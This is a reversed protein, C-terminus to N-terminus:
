QSDDAADEDTESLLNVADFWSVNEYSNNKVSKMASVFGESLSYLIAIGETTSYCSVIQKNQMYSNFDITISFSKGTTTTNQSTTGEEIIYEYDVGNINIAIVIDMSAPNLTFFELKNKGDFGIGVSDLEYTVAVVTLDLQTNINNIILTYDRGSEYTLTYDAVEESGDIFAEVVVSNLDYGDEVTVTTTLTGGRSIRSPMPNLTVGEINYYILADSTIQTATAGITVEGYVDAIYLTWTGNSNQTLVGEDSTITDGNMEIFFAGLSALEYGTYPSLTLTLSSHDAVSSISPYAVVSDLNYHIDWATVEGSAEQSINITASLGDITSITITGTNTYNYPNENIEITMTGNDSEPTDFIIDSYTMGLNGTNSIDLIEGIYKHRVTVNITYEGGINPVNLTSPNVRVTRDTAAQTASFVVNGAQNGSITITFNRQGGINNDILFHIEDAGTDFPLIQVYNADTEVDMIADRNVLHLVYEKSQKPITPNDISYEMGDITTFATISLEIGYAEQKLLISTRLADSTTEFSWYAGSLFEGTHNPKFTFVLDAYESDNSRWQFSTLEVYDLSENHDDIVQEGPQRGILRLVANISGGEGGYTLEAPTIQLNRQVAAAQKYQVKFGTPDATYSKRGDMRDFAIQITQTQPSTSTSELIRCEINQTGANYQKGKYVNTINDPCDYIWFNYPSVVKLNLTGGISPVEPIQATTGVWMMTPRFYQTVSAEEADTGKSVKVKASYNALTTNTSTTKVKVTTNDSGTTKDITFHTSSM